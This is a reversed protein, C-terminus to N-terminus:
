GNTGEILHKGDWYHKYSGEKSGYYLKGNEIYVPSHWKEPDYKYTENELKLSNSGKEILIEELQCEQLIYDINQNAATLIYKDSSTFITIPKDTVKLGARKRSFQIHRVIENRLGELSLSHSATFDISVDM